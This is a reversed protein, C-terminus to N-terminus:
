INQRPALTVPIRTRHPPGVRLLTHVDCFSLFASLFFPFPSTTTTTSLSADILAPTAMFLIVNRNGSYATQHCLECYTKSESTRIAERRPFSVRWLVFFIAVRHKQRGAEARVLRQFPFQQVPCAVERAAPQMTLNPILHQM